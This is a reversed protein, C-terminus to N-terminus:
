RLAGWTHVLRTAEPNHRHPTTPWRTGWLQHHLDGPFAWPAQPSGFHLQKHAPDNKWGRPTHPPRLPRPVLSVAQAQRQGRCAQSLFGERLTM